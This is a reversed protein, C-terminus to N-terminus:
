KKVAAAMSTLNEQKLADRRNTVYTELDAFRKMRARLGELLLEVAQALDKQLEEEEKKALLEAKVRAAELAAAALQAGEDSQATQMAEAASRGVATPLLTTLVTLLTQPNAALPSLPLSTARQAGPLPLRIFRLLCELPTRQLQRGVAPWDDQHQEVAALLQATEETTWGEAGETQVTASEAQAQPIAAGAPPPPAAPPVHSAAVLCNIIGRHELFQHVRLIACVDGALSRRCATYSMRQQPHQWYSHVMFDRYDRYLSETKAGDSGDFFEPLAEKEYAHVVELQFWAATSPLVLTL